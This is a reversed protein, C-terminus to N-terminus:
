GCRYLYKSCGGCSVTVSYLVKDGAGMTYFVYNREQESISTFFDVLKPVEYFKHLAVLLKHKAFVRAMDMTGVGAMNSAIIPVAELTRPSHTFTFQRVLEVEARSGLTSRKPRILVDSYDLKVDEEIRM